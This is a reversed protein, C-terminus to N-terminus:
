VPSRSDSPMTRSAVPWSQTGEIQSSLVAEKRIYMYLFLHPDPLLRTLGDLRGVARNSRELVDQLDTTLVIPPNVPLAAPIFATFVATGPQQTVFTGARGSHEM